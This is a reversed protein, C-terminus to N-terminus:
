MKSFELWNYKTVAKLEVGHRAANRRAIAEYNPDIENSSVDLGQKALLVTTFGDGLAANLITKSGHEHLLQKLFPLESEARKEWGVYETWYSALKPEPANYDKKGM